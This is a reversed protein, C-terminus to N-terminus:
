KGFPDDVVIVDKILLERAPTFTGMKLPVDRELKELVNWGAMVRGIILNMGDLEPLSGLTIYLHPVFKGVRKNVLGLLGRRDHRLVSNSETNISSKIFINDIQDLRGAQMLKSPHLKYVPADVFLGELAAKIFTQCFIPNSTFLEFHLDGYLSFRISIRAPGVVPLVINKALLRPEKSGEQTISSVSEKTIQKRFTPKKLILIDSRKFPIDTMPDVWHQVNEKCIDDIIQRDYIYGTCKLLIPNNAGKLERFTIPCIIKGADVQNKIEILSKKSLNNGTIPDFDNEDDLYELIALYDYIVGELTCVPKDWPRLTLNCIELNYCSEEELDCFSNPTNRNFNNKAGFFEGTQCESRTIYLKDTWKGM